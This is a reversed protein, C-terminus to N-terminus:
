GFLECMALIIKKIRPINNNASIIFSVTTEWVDQKLIRIGQGYEICQALKEDNVSLAKKIAGYDVDLTFYDEWFENDVDDCFLENDHVRCVKGSAIGIYDNDSMEWRFCQGCDFTHASNFDNEFKIM